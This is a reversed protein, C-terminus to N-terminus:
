TTNRGTDTAKPTHTRAHTHAHMPHILEYTPIEEGSSIGAQFFHTKSPLRIAVASDYIFSKIIKACLYFYFM